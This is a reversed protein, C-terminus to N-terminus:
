IGLVQEIKMLRQYIDSMAKEFEARYLQIMNEQAQVIQLLVPNVPMNQLGGPIPAPQIRDGMAVEQLQRGLYKEM